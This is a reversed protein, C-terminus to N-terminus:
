YRSWYLETDLGLRNIGDRVDGTVCNVVPVYNTNITNDVLNGNADIMLYGGDLNKEVVVSCADSLSFIHSNEDKLMEPSTGLNNSIYRMYEEDSIVIDSNNFSDNAFSMMKFIKWRSVPIDMIQERVIEDRNLSCVM